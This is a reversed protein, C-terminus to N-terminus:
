SADTELKPGAQAGREIALVENHPVFLPRREDDWAVPRNTPNRAERPLKALM